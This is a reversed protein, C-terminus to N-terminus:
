QIPPGFVQWGILAIVVWVLLGVGGFIPSFGGAWFYGGISAFLVLLWIVWFLIGKPM